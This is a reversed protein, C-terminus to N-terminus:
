GSRISIRFPLVPLRPWWSPFIRILPTNEVPLSARLKQNVQGPDLGRILRSARDEELDALIQQSARIRWAARNDAGLIPENQLKVEVSGPMAHYGAPINADLIAKAMAELDARTAVQAQFGLTLALNLRDSPQDQPPDYEARVVQTLTLTPTLLLDGPQIQRSLEDLAQLRLSEVLQAYLAERQYATPSLLPRNTGGSAPLPNTVTLRTGLSGEFTTLSEAPLNGEVGSILARAPLSVSQGVGAPVRGTRTISFRRPEDDQARVVTGEPIAIVQDTLNSILVDVTAAKDPVSSFGKAPTNIEESVVVEVIRAPVAGSLNITDIKPDAHVDLSIQQERSQPTLTIEAAPLIVAAISLLAFISLTFAAIRTIPSSLWPPANPHAQQRLGDLNAIRSRPRPPLVGKRWRVSRTTRWHSKQAQRLDKFVPVGLQAAHYCVQPDRTILALQAGLSQSHRLLLILDLRRTLIRGREPWILLIRGTQSWQMKDRASIVDDHAELRLIQTKM